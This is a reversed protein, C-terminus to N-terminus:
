FSVGIKAELATIRTDVNTQMAISKIGQQEYLKRVPMQQENTMCTWVAKTQKKYEVKGM